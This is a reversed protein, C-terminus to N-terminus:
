IVAVVRGCLEEEEEVVCPLCGNWEVVCITYHGVHTLAPGHERRRQGQGAEFRGAAGDMTDAVGRWEEAAM